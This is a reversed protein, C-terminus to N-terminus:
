YGVTYSGTTFNMFLPSTLPPATLTQLQANPLRSNFYAIQRYWVQGSTNHFANSAIGLFLSNMSGATSGTVSTAVAGDLSVTSTAGYAMAAKHTGIQSTGLAIQMQTTGGVRQYGTIATGSTPTLGSSDVAGIFRPLTALNPQAVAFTFDAVLTGEPQNYWSSFNTGSMNAVDANRTVQSAVTPIYSTAFAGAELQAGYLFIGSTGNAVTTTSVGNADAPYIVADNTGVTTTGTITCRYWGNGANTITATVGSGLTSITGADLNFWTLSNVVTNLQLILFNLEAKKAYVSLTHAAATLTTTLNLRHTTAATTDVALKDANTTGDPSVTVNATVNARTKVWAADDFQASYVALNTRAEEILLGLPALTVPNHDFRPGYYAASTTAVYPGPVTQYTVQERQAGWIFIGSVGDGTYSSSPANSLATYIFNFNATERVTRMSCRYWGDGVATISTAAGSPAVTGNDLNFFASRAGIDLRMWFREARKAYVSLTEIDGINGGNQSVFHSSTATNEVLKEATMTGDPATTANTVVSSNLKQWVADNFEQSRLLLNSPAYTIQGTSDVLTANSGRSFTVRSDLSGSLMNLYLSAGPFPGGARRSTLFTSALLGVALGNRVPIGFSV